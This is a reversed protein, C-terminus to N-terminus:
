RASTAIEPAPHTSILVAVVPFHDSMGRRLVRADLCKLQSSYLIHDYRARLTFLSTRWQWTNSTSDFPRLADAFGRERLWSVAKGSDNENFDGLVLTPSIAELKESLLRVEDRRISATGFYASASVSGGEALPPRLHVNVLQVPGIPTQAKVIWSPFWGPTATLYDIEEFPYKCLIAQGGAGGSHRFEMHPYLSSLERRLQREWSPTTEQLCVADSNSEVIAAIAQDMGIGGFNVNYTMVRLHPGDVQLPPRQPARSTCGALLILMLILIRM